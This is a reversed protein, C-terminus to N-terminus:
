ETVETMTVQITYDNEPKQGIAYVTVVGGDNETVFALDKQHFIALQEVSPTLDVQSNETAGNVTVVQSYPSETGVWKNALITVYSIRASATEIAVRKSVEAAIKNLDEESLNYKPPTAVPNKNTDSSTTGSYKFSKSKPMHTRNYYRSFESYAKNYMEVSNNYRAYEGNYYDIWTELWKLYIEDYPSSVLLETTLPTSETYGEFVIAEGGEHTDIVKRKIIGDLNSLWRVKEAQTYSNPKITDIRNIAEIITMNGGNLSHPFM